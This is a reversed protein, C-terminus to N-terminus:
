RTLGGVGALGWALRRGMSILEWCSADVQELRSSQPRGRPRRWGPNDRESVVWCAPDGEPYRAVTGYAWIAPTSM